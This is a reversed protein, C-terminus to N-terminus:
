LLYQTFIGQPDWRQKLGQLKELHGDRYIKELPMDRTWNQFSTDEALGGSDVLRDHLRSVAAETVEKSAADEYNLVCEVWTMFGRQCAFASEPEPGFTPSLEAPTRALILMYVSRKADPCEKRLDVVADMITHLDQVRISRLPWGMPKKISTAEPAEAMKNVTAFPRPMCSNVVPGCSIIPAFFREAASSDGFFFPIYVIIPDTTGPLTTFVVGASHAQSQDSFVQEMAPFVEPAKSAPFVMAGSWISADPTRFISPGFGQLTVETVIGFFQGAGRIAYLLDRHSTSSVTLLDGAATVLKASLIHDSAVGMIGMFFGLGGGLLYGMVGLSDASGLCLYVGHAATAENAEGTLVGAQLTAQKKDADVTIANMKGLDIIIGPAGIVSWGPSHGGAKPVFPIGCQVALKVTSVIDADTAPLVIAAPTKRDYESWRVLRREFAEGDTPTLVDAEKSLSTRLSAVFSDLESNM